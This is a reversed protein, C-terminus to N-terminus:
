GVTRELTLRLIKQKLLRVLDETCTLTEIETRVIILVKIGDRTLANLVESHACSSGDRGGTIGNLAVLIGHSSGRDQLKRVFWGVQSSGVPTATAKCEVILVPDLFFVDSIPQQNWFALDLEHARAGDLINRNHFDIGPITEFLLRGLRELAAGKDTNTTAGDVQALSAEVSGEAYIPM